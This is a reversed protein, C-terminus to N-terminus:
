EGPAESPSDSLNLAAFNYPPWPGTLDLRLGQPRYQQALEAVRAHFADAGDDAVSLTIDGTLVVGKDLVRDLLELLTLREEPSGAGADLDALTTQFDETM